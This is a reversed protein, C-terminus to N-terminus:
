KYQWAFCNKFIFADMNLDPHKSNRLSGMKSYGQRTKSEFAPANFSDYQSLNLQLIDPWRSITYKDYNHQQSQSITLGCAVQGGHVGHFKILDPSDSNPSIVM